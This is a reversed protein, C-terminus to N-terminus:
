NASAGWASAVRAGFPGDNQHPALVIVLTKEALDRNQLPESVSAERSWAQRIM